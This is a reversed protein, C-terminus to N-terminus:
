RQRGDSIGTPQDPTQQDYKQDANVVRRHEYVFGQRRPSPHEAVGAQDNKHQTETQLGQIHESEARPMGAFGFPRFGQVGSRAAVHATYVGSEHGCHARRFGVTRGTCDLTILKGIRHATIIADASRHTPQSEAGPSSSEPSGGVSESTVMKGRLTSRVASGDAARPPSTTYLDSSCM